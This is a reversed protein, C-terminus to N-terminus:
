KDAKPPPPPAYEAARAKYDDPAPAPGKVPEPAPPTASAPGAAAAAAEQDALLRARLVSAPVEQEEDIEHPSVPFDNEGVDFDDAEDFTEFGQQSAVNSMHVRIQERIIEAMSPQKKYGLPPALPTPDPILQGQDNLPKGKPHKAIAEEIARLAENRKAM